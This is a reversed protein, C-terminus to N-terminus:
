VDRGGAQHTTPRPSPPRRQHPSRIGAGGWFARGSRFTRARVADVPFGGGDFNKEQYAIIRAVGSMRPIHAVLRSAVDTHQHYIAADEANLPRGREVKAIITDPLMIFGMLCLMAAADTQWPEPGRWGRCAAYTRGRHAFGAMSRRGSCSLVDSLMKLSGRLTGELLEREAM